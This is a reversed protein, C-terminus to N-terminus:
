ARQYILVGDRKVAPGVVELDAGYEYWELQITYPLMLDPKLDYEMKWYFWTGYSLAPDPGTNMSIALDIDSDSRSNGKARSGILHVTRIEPHKKAWLTIEHLDSDTLDVSM